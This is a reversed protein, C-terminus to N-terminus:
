ANAFQAFFSRIKNFLDTFFDIIRQWWSKQTNEQSGQQEKMIKNCVDCHNDEDADVHEGTAPIETLSTEDVYRCGVRTCQLQKQGANMCTPASVTVWDMQHGLPPNGETQYEFMCPEVGNLAVCKVNLIEPETCSAKAGVSTQFRHFNCDRLVPFEYGHYNGPVFWVNDFDWGEYTEQLKMDDATVTDSVAVCNEIVNNEESGIPWDLGGSTISGTNYCYTVAANNGSGFVGACDLEGNIDGSNGCCSVTGDVFGVIGGLATSSSNDTDYSIVDGKNICHSVTGNIYGAIGGCYKNQASVSSRNICREITAGNDAYGVIGGAYCGEYISVSAESNCDTISGGDVRGAVAGANSDAEVGCSWIWINRITSDKANGVVIGVNNGVSLSFSSVRLNEITANEVNGFLGINDCSLDDFMEGSGSIRHDNGNFYGTFPSEETGIGLDTQDDINLDTELSIYKDAFMETNDRFYRYDEISSILYPENETGSGNLSVDDAFVSFSFATCLFVACLLLSLAKKFM